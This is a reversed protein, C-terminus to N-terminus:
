SPSATSCSSAPAAGRQRGPQAIGRAMADRGLNAEPMLQDGREGLVVLLAASETDVQILEGMGWTITFIVLKAREFSPSAACKSSMERLPWFSIKSGAPSAKLARPPCM